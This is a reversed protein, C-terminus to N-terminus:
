RYEHLQAPFDSLWQAGTTLPPLPISSLPFNTDDIAVFPLPTIPDAFETENSFANYQPENTTASTSCVRSIHGSQDGFAMVQSNTSIDFSM